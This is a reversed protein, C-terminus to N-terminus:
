PRGHGKLWRFVLVSKPSAGHLRGALSHLLPVQPSPEALRLVYACLTSNAM